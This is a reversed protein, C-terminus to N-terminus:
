EPMARLAALVTRLEGESRAGHELWTRWAHPGPAVALGPAYPIKPWGLSEALAVITAKLDDGNSSLPLLADGDDGDDGSALETGLQVHGKTVIHKGSTTVLPLSTTVITVM